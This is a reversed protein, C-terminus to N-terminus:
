LIKGIYREGIKRWAEQNVIKALKRNVQERLPSGAPMAMGVYYVTITEPLVQLQGPFKNKVLYKLQLEDDVFADIRNSVLAQLGKQHDELPIVPIGEKVLFELTESAALAGVRVTPLDRPGKVQGSLEDVTLSSTIVATYSAILFISFFMWLVAVCRGGITKPAKDGYGVTTMTVLAWWVGHGLGKSLRDAFMERNRKREMLWILAGAALSLLALMALLKLSNISLIRRVSKWWSVGSKQLSVAIGLGSTYYAHSLDMITENHETVSISTNLDIHNNRVAETILKIRDFERIEYQVGLDRAVLEWLEISLGSWSGDADKITFPPFHTAGVILMPPTGAPDGAWINSPALFIAVQLIILVPHFGKIKHITALRM